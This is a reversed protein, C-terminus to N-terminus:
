TCTYVCVGVDSRWIILFCRNLNANAVEVLEANRRPSGHSSPDYRWRSREVPIRRAHTANAKGEVLRRKEVNKNICGKPSLCM